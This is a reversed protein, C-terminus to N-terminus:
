RKRYNLTALEAAFREADSDPGRRSDEYSLSLTRAEQVASLAESAAAKMAMLRTLLAGLRSEILNEREDAGGRGARPAMVFRGIQKEVAIIRKTIERLDARLSKECRELQIGVRYLLRGDGSVLMENIEDDLIKLFLTEGATVRAPAGEVEGTADYRSRREPDGLTEWAQNIEQMEAESGGKDPHAAAAKKRYAAKIDRMTASRPLGFIEYLNPENM